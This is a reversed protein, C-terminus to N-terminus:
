QIPQLVEHKELLQDMENFIDSNHTYLCKYHERIIRKIDAPDTTINGRENRINVIQTKGRMTEKDTKSSTQCNIIKM